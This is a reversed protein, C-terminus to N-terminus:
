AAKRRGRRPQPNRYRDIIKWVGMATLPGRCGQFLPVPLNQIKAERIWALLRDGLRIPLLFQWTVDPSSCLVVVRGMEITVDAARLAAIQVTSLGSAVLTLVAGDRLGVARGSRVRSRDVRLLLAFAEKSELYM